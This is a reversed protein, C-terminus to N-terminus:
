EPPEETVPVSGGPVELGSDEPEGDGQEDDDPEPEDAQDGEGSELEDDAVEDPEDPDVTPTEDRM